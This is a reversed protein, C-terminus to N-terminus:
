VSFGFSFYIFIMRLLDLWIRDYFIVEEDQDPIMLDYNWHANVQKGIGEKYVYVGKGHIRGNEWTADIMSGDSKHFKGKGHKM